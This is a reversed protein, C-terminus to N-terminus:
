PANSAEPLAPATFAASAEARIGRSNICWAYITIIQGPVWSVFVEGLDDQDTQAYHVDPPPFEAVVLTNGDAVVSVGFKVGRLSIAGGFGHRNLMAHIDAGTPTAGSADITLAGSLTDYVVRIM